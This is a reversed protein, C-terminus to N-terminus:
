KKKLGLAAAVQEVMDHTFEKMEAPTWPSHTPLSAPTLLRPHNQFEPKPTVEFEPPFSNDFYMQQFGIFKLHHATADVVAVENKNVLGARLAARLGALSEGGQTCAIHGNRNALLMSDMIEQETVEVVAFSHDGARRTYEEALRIVRPMSVPRGIMAAQAVSPQVTVPVFLRKDPNQEQYYKFVPNAHRSQVGIVKPLTEIVGLDHFRLLGELM